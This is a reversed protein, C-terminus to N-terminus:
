KVQAEQSKAFYFLKRVCLMMIKKRIIKPIKKGLNEGIFSLQLVMHRNSLGEPFPGPNYIEICLYDNYDKGLKPPEDRIHYGQPLVTSIARTAMRGARDNDLQFVITDVEPHEKLFRALTAPVKSQGIEKAPQYVGLRQM